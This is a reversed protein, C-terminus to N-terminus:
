IISGIDLLTDTILCCKEKALANPQILDKIMISKFGGRVAAEIGNLSDEIVFIDKPEIGLKKATILFIYPNPKSNAGVDEVTTIVDFLQYPDLDKQSFLKEMRMKKNSTALALKYGKAKASKILEIFGEKVVYAAQNIKNLYYAGIEERYKKGDLEPFMTKLEAIILEESKGCISARYTEDLPLNYRKTYYEFAEKWLNETNFIVGDMDFIIAKM